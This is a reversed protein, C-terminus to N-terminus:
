SNDGLCETGRSLAIWLRRQTADETNRQPMRMMHSAMICKVRTISMLRTESQMMCATSLQLAGLMTTMTNNQVVEPQQQLHRAMAVLIPASYDILSHVAQIYYLHLVTFYTGASPRTMARMMNLRAQM